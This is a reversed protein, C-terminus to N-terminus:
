ILEVLLWYDSSRNGAVVKFQALVKGLGKFEPLTPACSLEELLGISGPSDRLLSIKPYSLNAPCQLIITMVSLNLGTNNHSISM